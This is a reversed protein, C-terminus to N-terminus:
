LMTLPCETLENMYAKRQEENMDFWDSVILRLHATIDALECENSLGCIALKLEQQHRDVDEWVARMFQLKSQNVKKKDVREM